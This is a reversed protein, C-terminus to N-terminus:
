STIVPKYEWLQIFAIALAPIFLVCGTSTQQLIKKARAVKNPLHLRRFQPRNDSGIIKHTIVLFIIIWTRFMRPILRVM